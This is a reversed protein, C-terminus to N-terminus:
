VHFETNAQSSKISKLRKNNEVQVHVKGWNIIIRKRTRMKVFTPWNIWFERTTLVIILKWAIGM